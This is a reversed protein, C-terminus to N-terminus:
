LRFNNAQGEFHFEKILKGHKNNGKKDYQGENSYNNKINIISSLPFMDIRIIEISNMM